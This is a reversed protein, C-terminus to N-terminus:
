VAGRGKKGEKIHSKEVNLQPSDRKGTKPNKKPNNGSIHTNDPHIQPIFHTLYGGVGSDGKM